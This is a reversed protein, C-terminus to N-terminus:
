RENGLSRIKEYGSLRRIIFSGLSTGILSAAASAPIFGLVNLRRTESEDISVTRSGRSRRTLSMRMTSKSLYM